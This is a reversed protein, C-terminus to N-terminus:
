HGSALADFWQKVFAAFNPESTGLATCVDIGGALGPLMGDLASALPVLFPSPSPALSDAASSPFGAITLCRARMQDATESESSAVFVFRTARRPLPGSSLQAWYAPNQGFTSASPCSSLLMPRPGTDVLITLLAGPSPSFPRVGAASLYAISNGARSLGETTCGQPPGLSAASAQRLAAALAITPQADLRAAWLLNGSYLDGVGVSSVIFGPKNVAALWDDVLHSISDAINATGPDIRVLILLGTGHDGNQGSGPITEAPTGSDPNLTLGGDLNGGGGGGGSGGGGGLGGGQGGGGHGADPLIPLNGGDPMEPAAILCAPLLAAILIARRM